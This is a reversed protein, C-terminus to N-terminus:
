LLRLQAKNSLEVAIMRSAERDNPWDTINAHRPHPNPASIVNLDHELVESVFIEARGLLPKGLVSAVFQKGIESIEPDSLDDIRYISTEGKSNPMFANHRVTKNGPRYYPKQNIFRATLESELIKKDM